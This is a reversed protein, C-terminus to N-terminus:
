GVLWQNSTTTPAASLLAQLSYSNKMDYYGQRTHGTISALPNHEAARSSQIPLVATLLTDKQENGRLWCMFGCCGDGSRNQSLDADLSMTLRSLLPGIGERHTAVARAM